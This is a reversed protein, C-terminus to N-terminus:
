HGEDLETVAHRSGRKKSGIDTGRIEASQKHSRVHGAYVSKAKRSLFM